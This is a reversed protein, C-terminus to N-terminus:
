SKRAPSRKRIRAFTSVVGLLVFIMFVVFVALVNGTLAMAVAHLLASALWVAFNSAPM